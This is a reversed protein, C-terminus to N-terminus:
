TRSKVFSQLREKVEYPKLKPRDLQESSGKSIRMHLFTLERTQQWDRISAELQELSHVYISNVYGCAYAIDVFNIQDSVTKQSGTSDYANNDLLIHLMNPPSYYGNTAFSGMRM